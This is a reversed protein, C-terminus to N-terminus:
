LEKRFWHDAFPEDNFPEVEVFGVSRYLGIAETLMANTELQVASDGHEVARRELEELLRRGVGLGRSGEDVWMRKLDSSTGDEHHKLAGCGIATGGLYVVLMVGRPPRLEEPEATSGARPDFPVESRTNLEDIYAALCRRADPHDPDVQRIEM